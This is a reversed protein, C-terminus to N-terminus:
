KASGTAAANKAPIWALPSELWHLLDSHLGARRKFVEFSYRGGNVTLAAALFYCMAVWAVPLTKIGILHAGVGLGLAMAGLFMFKRARTALQEVVEPNRLPDNRQMARVGPMRSPIWEGPMSIWESAKGLARRRVQFARISSQACNALCSASVACALAAPVFSGVVLFCAAITMGIVGLFLTLYVQLLIQNHILPLEAEDIKLRQMAQSFSEVRGPKLLDKTGQRLNGSATRIVNAGRMTNTVTSNVAGRFTARQDRDAIFGKVPTTTDTM